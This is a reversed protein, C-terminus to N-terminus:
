DDIGICDRSVAQLTGVILYIPLYFNYGSSATLSHPIPLADSDPTVALNCLCYVRTVTWM